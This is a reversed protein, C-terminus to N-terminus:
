AYSFKVHSSNLRTSKRDQTRGSLYLYYFHGASAFQGALGHHAAVIHAVGVVLRPAAKQGIQAFNRQHRLHEALAEPQPNRCVGQARHFMAAPKVGKQQLGFRVIKGLARPKQLLLYLLLQSLLLSPVSKSKPAPSEGGVPEMVWSLFIVWEREAHGCTAAM